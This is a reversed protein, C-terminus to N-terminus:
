KFKWCYGGSSKRESRCVKAISAKNYGTQKSAESVSEYESVFEGEMTLQHAVFENTYEAEFDGMERQIYDFVLCKKLTNKNSMGAKTEVLKNIIIQLDKNEVHKETHYEFCRLRITM